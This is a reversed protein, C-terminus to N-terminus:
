TNREDEEPTQADTSPAPSGDDPQDPNAEPDEEEQHYVYVVRGEKTTTLPLFLDFNVSSISVTKKNYSFKERLSLDFTIGIADTEGKTGCLKLVAVAMDVATSVDELDKPDDILSSLVVNLEGLPINIDIKVGTRMEFPKKDYGVYADVTSLGVKVWQSLYPEVEEYADAYDAIADVKKVVGIFRKLYDFAIKHLKEEDFLFSYTYRVNDVDFYKDATDSKSWNKPSGLQSLFITMLYGSLSVDLDIGKSDLLKPLENEDTAGWFSSLQKKTDTQCRALKLNYVGDSFGLQANYYTKGGLFASLADESASYDPDDIKKIQDYTSKVRDDSGVCSFSGDTYVKGDSQIRLMDIQGRATIAALENQAIQCLSLAMEISFDSRKTALSEYGSMVENFPPKVSSARKALDTKSSSSSSEGFCATLSLTLVLCLLICVLKVSARVFFNEWVIILLEIILPFPPKQLAAFLFDGSFASFPAVCSFFSEKGPFVIAEDSAFFFLPDARLKERRVLTGCTSHFDINRNKFIKTLSVLCITDSIKAFRIEGMTKIGFASFTLTQKENAV